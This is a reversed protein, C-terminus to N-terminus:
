VGFAATPIDMLLEPSVTDLNASTRSQKGWKDPVPYIINKDISCFSNQYFPTLKSNAVRGKVFFYCIKNKILQYRCGKKWNILYKRGHM